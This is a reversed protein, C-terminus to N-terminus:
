AMTFAIILYAQRLDDRSLSRFDDADDKKIKISWTGLANAPPVVPQKLLHHVQSLGADRPMTEVSPVNPGPLQLQVDFAGAHESDAILDIRSLRLIAANRAYFPLHNRDLTFTLQQDNGAAPTLFRHWETAFEHTLAFLRMGVNPLVSSLNEKAATILAQSGAEAHYRIHLVVDSITAFDFQNSSQPLTIQWQSVAGAGEFPLFREDNFDLEFLGADNQANSTAISQVPVTERVFRDDATVLPDGYNDAVGDKVRVGNSTLSLMCNIGTYPGVVCPISIAVSKIRRRLHGPYDADYLWEPLTVTCSGTEKLAMLALPDVTALSVHKTLEFTRVNRGYYAAELRRLDNALREGALLGKKLGDWYGFQIYGGDHPGFEFGFAREARKAMDYALQYSQFYVTLVQGLMWGYLQQNTYKSHLYDDAAQAQSIQLEHNELEKEAIAVRIAAADIQKRIQEADIGALRGQFAWDDARRHYGGMTASLAAFKDAARAISSLTNVAMEATRSIKEGSTLESTIVPTGGFGSTGATFGPILSLGGSLTYGLAIGTEALASVGNLGLAVGEWTNIFERSTYYDIREEAQAKAQQLGALAANADSIQSERVQKVARLLEVENSSRLLALAEADGKELISLLKDGLARVDQTLELAKQILPRCRYQSAPVTTESLVTGIDMGAAAAQVLLAPEVPPEFLPLKRVVGAINMCHRIKFLRDAVVDWYGLLTENDPIGFYLVDLRPMPPTGETGRVMEVPPPVFNEMLIEVLKNGFPDLATGATLENYTLDRHAAAPMRTPRPGLIEYALLYLTTAENISEITDQRFLYDGWAILNDLYRMVVTKQYAVPRTRAILHPKFPNNRWARLQDVNAGINNLLETIRQERYDQSNQEYFPRTLWFREPSQVTDTNTPDFIVHFWRMAEEFRQQQSLRTAILLPAHFFLEWNYGAYAGSPSFDVSDRVASPDAACAAAPRYSAFQYSNGPYYTHPALQITRNLLGRLGARKLERIFLATYPHYFPYFAYRLRRREQNYGLIVPQWEPRIFFSRQPDQYVLPPPFTVATDMQLTHPSVALEFPPQAGELLTVSAGAELVNLRSPNPKAENNRLKTNRFHMGAPLALRPATQYPGSLRNIEEGAAGFADHVYQYSNTRSLTDTVQGQSNLVRYLGALGKMRVDVVDGDFIFSSSHWPRVTEDFRVSSLARLPNQPDAYQDYFLADNFERSTSIYIDLWLLNERAKYRPKINYSQLPRQWPHILRQRSLKKAAWGTKTHASWALQLEVQMPPEPANQPSASPSQRAPPQKRARQPKQTFVLWFLFLQRNYVVPIVQDGTIELDIREWPSWTGTNMDYQRYYYVAPQSRSRGVVHLVNVNPPLSDDDVQYYVGTIDLRSVEHLKELYHLLATEAREGTIEGQLLESELEAFFPSKDDLLEPLIWNEPYLFVKRNAEWVRYSKMWQWQEWSNMDAGDALPPRSVQVFAPELNLFCRQVFMQVASIAQKLRSTLQCAGMEVDVLVHGLLDNEDHWRRPNAYSRGNVTITAPETRQAHEILWAVLADRKKERLADQIPTAIALWAGTSYRMKTVQRIQQATTFQRDGADDDRRAWALPQDADVGLRRLAHFCQRLRLYTEAKTYDSGAGHRLGLRAHLAQLDSVKWATLAALASHIADLATTPEAALDLIKTLSVDEPERYARRFDAIQALTLWSAFLPQAPPAAIPLGNFDLSGIKEPGTLFWRLDEGAQLGHKKILIAAKHLLAFGEFLRPFNVQTVPTAYGGSANVATLNPDEFHALLIDGLRLERLLISAQEDSLGFATGVQAIIQGAPEAAPNSRLSERVTEIGQAIVEDRLGYPSGPRHNLLFDLERIQFGAATIWGYRDILDLAQRPSGLPDTGTLDALTLLDAIPLQLRRALTAYGFMTALSALTLSADTRPLLLALEAETVALAATLTPRHRALMQGTSLPLAFAPDVPNTVATNQFLNLYLPAITGHSSGPIARLQTNMTGLLALTSEVDLALRQQLTAIRWLRALAGSDLTGNGAKPARLLMDLEWMQWPVHRWLRLFRHMQDLRAPTLNILNQEGISAAGAPPQITMPNGASVPNLWEVQLLSLLELYDIKARGLFTPVDVSSRAADFGWYTTQAAASAAAETILSTEHSSIGWFEGAISADAPSPPRDPPRCQFIAMLEHRPIGLHNLYARAEEQWLNLAAGIPYDANKLLGYAEERVNEPFARLQAAPETTQFGAGPNPSPAPVLSELVECVLDIYPLVIDTNDCNLKLNGLDPRRDLLINMVSKGAQESPQADLFRLLDALYAPPGFVSACHPCDCADVPGFLAELDPIAGALQTLEERTYTHQIIAKPDARHLDFHYDTLRHLAQTYQSEALGHVTLATRQDLGAAGLRRVLQEKGIALVHSASHVGQELLIRGAAATPAVRRVRQMVKAEARVDEPVTAQALYADINSTGLDLGPREDLLRQVEALKSLRTRASRGAEAVFATSPFLGESRAASSAAYADIREAPTAGSTGPPVAGGNDRILQAWAAHDLKALDRASRIATVRPDAIKAKLFRVAPLFNQTVEGLQVTTELDGLAAAGGFDDPHGRADTWFQPGFSKHRLFTAAVAPYNAPGVPTTDLLARLNGEGALIPKDLAFTQRLAALRALITERNRAVAVPILNEAVANDFVHTQLEPDTFVLGNSALDVLEDILTWEETSSLLDSPLAAPMNQRIFAYCVELGIPPTNLARAARASLTLRMVDDQSLGSNLAVHTIEQSQESEVLDAVPLSGLVRSVAKMRREYESPGRYPGPGDTFNVWAVLTPNFLVKSSFVAGGPDVVTIQLHYPEKVQKNVPDLPPNYPIDFFGNTGVLREALVPGEGRVLKERVQVRVGARGQWLADRVSGRVRFRFAAGAAGPNAREVEANLVRQTAGAFHGDAPLGRSKQFALVAERTTRGFTRTNFEKENVPYSLYALAQQLRGVYQSTMNLRLTRDVPRLQDAAQVKLLGPPGPRSAAVSEIQALTAPNLEGTPPLRYRNQFARIAVMTSAGIQKQKLEDPQITADVKGIRMARLLLRQVQGVQTKTSLRATLADDQLRTVLADTVQGDQPLGCAAQYAILAARTKAGFTRGRVEAGDVPHGVRALLDHIRATRTKSGTYFRHDLAANLRAVTVESLRGDGPLGVSKQFARIADQTSPGIERRRSEGADVPLGLAALGGQLNAVAAPDTTSATVRIHAM